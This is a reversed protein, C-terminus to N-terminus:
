PEVPADADTEEGLDVFSLRARTYGPEKDDGEDIAEAEIRVHAEGYAESGWRKEEQQWWEPSLREPSEEARPEKYGEVRKFGLYSASAEGQMGYRGLLANAKSIQPDATGITALVRQYDRILNLADQLDRLVKERETSSLLKAQDEITKGLEGAEERWQHEAHGWQDLVEHHRKKSVILWM